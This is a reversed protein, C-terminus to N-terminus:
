DSGTGLRATRVPVELHVFQLLDKLTTSNNDSFPLRTLIILVVVGWFISMNM